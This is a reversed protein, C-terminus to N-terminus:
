YPVPVTRYARSVDGSLAVDGPDLIPETSEPWAMTRGTVVALGNDIWLIRTCM